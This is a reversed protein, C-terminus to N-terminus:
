PVFLDYYNDFVHGFEHVANPITPATNCTLIKSVSNFICNGILDATPDIIITFDGHNKRFADAPSTGSGAYHFKAGSLQAAKLENRKDAHSMQGDPITIGYAKLEDDTINGYQAKCYAIRYEGEECVNFPVYHGTPDNYRVPNNRAYSYRDWNQPNGPSPIISDAQIFRGIEPDYWRANYFYLGAEAQRQGTYKFSTGLNPNNPQDSGWSAYKIEFNNESPYKSGNANIMKQTSGLHDTVFYHVIGNDSMTMRTGSADLDVGMHANYLLLWIAQMISLDNQVMQVLIEPFIRIIGRYRSKILYKTL